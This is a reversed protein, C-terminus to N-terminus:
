LVKDFIINEDLAQSFSQIMEKKSTKTKFQFTISLDISSEAEQHLTVVTYGSLIHLKDIM